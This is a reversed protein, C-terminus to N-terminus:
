GARRKSRRAQFSISAAFLRTMQNKVRAHDSRPGGRGPDLDLARLFEAFSRGLELRRSGKRVAETNIWYLILRPISGYPFGISKKRLFDYGPTIGLALFGNSRGWGPLEGPDSHPLTCQVFERALYTLDEPRLEEQRISVGADALKNTAKTIASPSSTAAAPMQALMDKLFGSEGARMLGTESQRSGKRSPPERM